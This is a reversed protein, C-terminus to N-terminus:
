VKVGGHLLLNVVKEKTNKKKQKKKKFLYFAKREKRSQVPRGNVTMGSWKNRAWIVDRVGRIEFTLLISRKELCLGSLSTLLSSFCHRRRGGPYCRTFISNINVKSNGLQRSRNMLQELQIHLALM